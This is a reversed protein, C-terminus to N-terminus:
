GNRCQKLMCCISIFVSEVNYQSLFHSFSFQEIFQLSCEVYSVYYLGAYQLNVNKNWLKCEMIAKQIIIVTAAYLRYTLSEIILPVM